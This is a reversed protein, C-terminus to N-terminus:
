PYYNERHILIKLLNFKWFSITRVRFVYGLVM